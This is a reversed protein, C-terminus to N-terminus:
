RGPFLGSVGGDTEKTELVKASTLLASLRDYGDEDDTSLYTTNVMGLESVEGTKLDVTSLHVSVEDESDAVVLLAHKSPDLKEPLMEYLPSGPRAFAQLSERATDVIKAADQGAV